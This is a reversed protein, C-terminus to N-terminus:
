SAKRHRPGASKEAEIAYNSRILWKSLKSALLADGIMQIREAKLEASFTTHGMWASTLAKLDATLYLDVDDKPDVMCLDTEANPRIILWALFDPQGQERLIFQVVSRRRPLASVDIKRRINWMLVRADSCNLGPEPDINRHAWSGLAHIVPELEDAVPTTAYRTGSTGGTEFREILGKQEMERLRKTLLSSSMGPVGRQIESFRASGSWMECLILMTWRPELMECAMAVPCFQTYGYTPM